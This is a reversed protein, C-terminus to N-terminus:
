RYGSVTPFDDTIATSLGQQSPSAKIAVTPQVFPDYAQYVVGAAARGIHDKIDYKSM